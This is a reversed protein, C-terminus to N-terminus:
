QNIILKMIKFSNGKKVKTLYVGNALKEKLQIEKIIQNANVGTHEVYVERGNLDIISIVFEDLSDDFGYANIYFGAGNNPNPFIKLYPNNSLAINKPLTSNPDYEIFCEDTSKAVLCPPSSCQDNYLRAEVEVRFIDGPNATINANIVGSTTCKLCIKDKSSGTIYCADPDNNNNNLCRPMYPRDRVPNDYVGQTNADNYFRYRYGWVLSGSITPDIEPNMITNNNIKITNNIDGCYTSNLKATYQAPGPSRIYCEGGEPTTGGGSSIVAQVTVKYIKNAEILKAKILSMERRWHNNATHVSKLLNDYVGPTNSDDYFNFIYHHTNAIHECVFVDSFGNIDFVDNANPSSGCYAPELKTTPLSTPTKIYCTKGYNTLLGNGTSNLRARVQVAYETDTNLFANPVPTHNSTWTGGAVNEIRSDGSSNGNSIAYSLNMKHRTSGYGLPGTYAYVIDNTQLNTIKWEYRWISTHYIEHIEFNESNAVEIASSQDPGCYTSILNTTKDLPQHFGQTIRESNNVDSLTIIVPEGVTFSVSGNSNSNEEGASSIVEQCFVGPCISYLFTFSIIYIYARLM